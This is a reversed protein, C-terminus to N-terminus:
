ARRLPDAQQRAEGADRALGALFEVAAAAGVIGEHNQTGTEMREPATDPAPRLKTVELSRLLERRGYLM